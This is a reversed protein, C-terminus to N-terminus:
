FTRLITSLIGCSGMELVLAAGGLKHELVRLGDTQGHGPVHETVQCRVHASGNLVNVRQVNHVAIDLAVIEESVVSALLVNACQVPVKLALSMAWRFQRDLENVETKRRHARKM